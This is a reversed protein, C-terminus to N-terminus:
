VEERHASAPACEAPLPPTILSNLQAHNQNPAHSAAMTASKLSHLFHDIPAADKTEGQEGGQHDQNSDNCADNGNPQHPYHHVHRDM